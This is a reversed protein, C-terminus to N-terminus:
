AVRQDAPLKALASSVIYIWKNQPNEKPPLQFGGTYTTGADLVIVDGPVSSVLAGALDESNHAHWTKGGTPKNWTTDLRVRPLEAVPKQAGASIALQFVTGLIALALLFSRRTMGAPYSRKMLVM